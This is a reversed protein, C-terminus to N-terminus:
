GNHRRPWTSKPDFYGHIRGNEECRVVWLTAFGQVATHLHLPFKGKTDLQFRREAENLRAAWEHAEEPQMHTLYNETM